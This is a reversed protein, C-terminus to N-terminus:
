VTKKPSKNTQINEGHDQLEASTRQLGRWGTTGRQDTPWSGVNHVWLRDQARSASSLSTMSGGGAGRTSGHSRRGAPKSTEGGWQALRQLGVNGCLAAAELHVAPLSQRSPWRQPGKQTPETPNPSLQTSIYISNKQLVQKAFVLRLQQWAANWWVFKVKLNQKCSKGANTKPVHRIQLFVQKRASLHPTQERKQLQKWKTKNFFEDRWM